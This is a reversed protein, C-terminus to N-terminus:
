DFMRKLMGQKKKAAGHGGGVVVSDDGQRKLEDLREKAEIYGGNAAKKHWETAKYKDKQVGLGYDYLFGIHSQALAHGQEAPKRYWGMAESYDKPVGLGTQYMYGINSQAGVEGQEAAKRYWEMARSYDKPVGRGNQYLYGINSQATAHGQEAARLYWDMAAQYDRHVGRGFYYGNGVAYQAEKDGLRAKMMTEAFYPSSSSSYEQPIGLLLDSNSSNSSFIRVPSTLIDTDNNKPAAAQDDSIAQPGQRPPLTAPNDIHNYSQMAEEVLGGVQNRRVTIAARTTADSVLTSNSNSGHPPMDPLAGQLSELSMEKARLQGRVVVDLTVSPIAAIRLPDLSVM